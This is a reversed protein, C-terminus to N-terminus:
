IQRASGGVSLRGGDALRRRSPEPFIADGLEAVADVVDRHLLEAIHELDVRGRENLVVALADAASTIVPAAPPAIVRESFLPGPKATDTDLDYDEISAVLWCDPDDLFPQLNPRRHSERVEGTTEDESISVTTHNIPGFDRLFSSWAIRMRVQADKWPRDQEQCTLVERVADRIPILKQIIRVHKEPVGEASRGKRVKVAVPQGDVLQMLGRRTDVVYSGERIRTDPSLSINADSAEGDDFDVAEPEGDYLSESSSVSPPTWRPM